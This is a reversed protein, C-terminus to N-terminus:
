TPLGAHWRVLQTQDTQFRFDLSNGNITFRGSSEIHGLPLAALRWSVESQDNRNELVAVGALTRDLEQIESAFKALSSPLICMPTTAAFFGTSLEGVLAVIGERASIDDLTLKWSDTHPNGFLISRM